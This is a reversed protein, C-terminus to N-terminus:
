ILTGIVDFNLVHGLTKALDPHQCTFHSTGMFGSEPTNLIRSDLHSSFVTRGM